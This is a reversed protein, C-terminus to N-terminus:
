PTGWLLFAPSNAGGTEIKLVCQMFHTQVTNAQTSDRILFVVTDLMYASKSM